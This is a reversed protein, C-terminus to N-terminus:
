EHDCGDIVTAELDLHSKIALVMRSSIPRSCANVRLSLRYSVKAAKNARAPTHIKPAILGPGDKAVTSRLLTTFPRRCPTNVPSPCPKPSDRICMESGM